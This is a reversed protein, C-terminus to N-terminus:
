AQAFVSKQGKHWRYVFHPMEGTYLAPDRIDYVLIGFPIILFYFVLIAVIITNGYVCFTLLKEWRM